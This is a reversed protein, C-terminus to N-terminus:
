RIPLIVDLCFFAATAAARFEDHPVMGATVRQQTHFLAAGVPEIPEQVRFAAELQLM